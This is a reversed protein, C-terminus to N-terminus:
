LAIFSREQLCCWNPTNPCGLGALLLFPVDADLGVTGSLLFCPEAGAWQGVASTFMLSTLVLGLEKCLGKPLSLAPSLWSFPQAWGPGCMLSCPSTFWGEAWLGSNM